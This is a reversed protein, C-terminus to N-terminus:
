YKIRALYLGSAPAPKSVYRKRADIQEQLQSASITGNSLELLAAVMLRIQSRLFATGEFHLVWFKDHKYFRTNLIHRVTTPEDSGSKRFFVFDHEGEFQKMGKRITEPDIEPVFHVYDAWFPNKPETTLLYRYIRGKAQRRPDFGEPAKSISRFVVGELKQNAIWRLRDLDKWHEPLDFAIVQGTAHVGRDTRGSGEIKSEIGLVKFLAEIRSVVTELVHKEGAKQVQFGYFRSGDYQIVAKARM